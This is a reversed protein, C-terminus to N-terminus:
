FRGRAFTPDVHGGWDVGHRRGQLCTGGGRVNPFINKPWNDRLITANQAILLFEPMKIINGAFIV